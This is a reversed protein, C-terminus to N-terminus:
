VVLTRSVPSVSVDKYMKHDLHKKFNYISM